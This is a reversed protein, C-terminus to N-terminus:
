GKFNALLSKIREYAAKDIAGSNLLSQAGKVFEEEWLKISAAPPTILNLKNKKMMEIAAREGKAVAPEFDEAVVKAAADLLKPQLDAPVRNWAREDVLIGGMFPAMPMDLMNNAIAFWQFQLAAPPATLFSDIMGQSLAVTYDNLNVSIPRYGMAQFTSFLAKDTDSVAMKRSRIEAPTTFPQKSFMYVWGARAYAVAVYGKDRFSKDLDPKMSEFVHKMQADSRILLPTSMTIVPLSIRGLGVSTFLGGQFTGQKIKRMVEDESGAAGGAIIQMKVKGGSLKIWEANIKDMARGYDSNAPALSAIRLTVTQASVLTPLVFALLVGAVLIKKKVQM